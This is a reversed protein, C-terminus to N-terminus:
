IGLLGSARLEFGLVVFLCSVFEIKIRRIEIEQTAQIVAYAVMV